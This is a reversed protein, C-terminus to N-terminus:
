FPFADQDLENCIEKLWKFNHKRSKQNQAFLYVKFSPYHKNDKNTDRTLGHVMVKDRRLKMSM